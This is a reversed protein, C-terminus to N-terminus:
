INKLFIKAIKALQKAKGTFDHDCNKLQYIKAQDNEKKLLEIAKKIPIVTYEDQDGIM